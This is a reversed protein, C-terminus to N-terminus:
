PIGTGFAVGFQETVFALALAKKGPQDRPPRMESSIEFRKTVEFILTAPMTITSLMYGPENLTLISFKTDSWGMNESRHRGSILSRTQRQMFFDAPMTSLQDM